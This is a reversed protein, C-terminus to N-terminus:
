ENGGTTEHALVARILAVEAEHGKLAQFRRRRVNPGRLSPHTLVAVSCPAVDPLFRVGHVLPGAEDLASMSRASAWVSLPEALPALFAPVWTGLTLVVSPQQAAIQRLFFTRCRAVFDTDRAGPFRGTTGRGQRLGMYANTFFCREPAIGVSEILKLLAHWTPAMRYTSGPPFEPVEAGAAFSRAFAEESHFDHGLIMVGGRPMAPLPAGARAGWLGAGGPFFATGPIRDPLPVVGAPYPGIDHLAQFLEDVVHQM